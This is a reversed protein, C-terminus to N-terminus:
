PSTPPNARATTSKEILWRNGSKRMIYSVFYPGVFKNEKLDGNSSYVAIFWKELTKVVAMDKRTNVEVSQFEFQECKTESGYRLGKDLLKRVGARIHQRDYNSNLDLETTWYRDLDAERFAAPDKYLVLSEYMQSEKVVRQIEEADNHRFWAMGFYLGVLFVAAALVYLIWRVSFRVKEGNEELFNEAPAVFVESQPRDANKNRRREWELGRENGVRTNFVYGRGKLNEIFKRDTEYAALVKQLKSVYQNVRVPTVGFSNDGWVQGIIEEFRVVENPRRLLLSLLELAKKDVKKVLEGRHYLALGAPDFHFDGFTLLHRSDANM